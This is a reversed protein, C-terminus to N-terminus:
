PNLVGKKRRSATSRAISSASGGGSERCYLQLLRWKHLLHRKLSRDARQAGIRLAIAVLEKKGSGFGEGLLAFVHRQLVNRAAGADADAGQVAMEGAALRQHAGGVAVLHVCQARS